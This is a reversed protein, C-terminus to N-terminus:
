RSVIRALGLKLLKSAAQTRTSAGLKQRLRKSHSRATEYGVGLKDAIQRDSLGDVMLQVMEMERPTLQPAPERWQEAHTQQEDMAAMVSHSRFRQNLSLKRFMTIVPRDPEFCDALNFVADATSLGAEVLDDHRDDVILVTRIDPVVERAQAVLALGSGEELQVTVILIGPRTRALEQLAEEQTTVLFSLRARDLASHFFGM